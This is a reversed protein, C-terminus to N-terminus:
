VHALALQALQQSETQWGPLEEVQGQPEFM